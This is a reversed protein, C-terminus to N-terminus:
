FYWMTPDLLMVNCDLTLDCWLPQKICDTCQNKTYKDHKEYLGCLISMEEATISHSEFADNHCNWHLTAVVKVVDFM